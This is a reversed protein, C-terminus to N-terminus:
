FDEKEKLTVIANRLSEISSSLHYIEIGIGNLKETLFSIADALNDTDM